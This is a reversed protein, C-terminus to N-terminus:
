FGGVLAEAKVEYAFMKSNHIITELVLECTLIAGRLRLLATSAPATWTRCVSGGSTIVAPPPLPLAVLTPHPPPPFDTTTPYRRPERAHM